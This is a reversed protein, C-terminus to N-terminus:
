PEVLGESGAAWAVAQSPATREGHTRPEHRFRYDEKRIVEDLESVLAHMKAQTHRVIAEAGSGGVRAAAATHRRCVGHSGQLAQAESAALAVLVEVYRAEAEFQAHCAPCAAERNARDTVGRLSRLLGGGRRGNQGASTQLERLAARVVDRYILATGLVSRAERLWQHAHANCFGGAIRLQKRLALDNVQEYAISQILRAVSRLALRCVPCGAERLADRVEFAATDRPSSSSSMNSFRRM